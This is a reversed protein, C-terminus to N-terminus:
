KVYHLLVRNEFAGNSIAKSRRVEELEELSYGRALTIANIVELMDALEEITKSEMYEDCEELLKEDLKALYDATSLVSTELEKGSDKIIEPIRDRVLKDYVIKSM